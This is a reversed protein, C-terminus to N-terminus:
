IGTKTGSLRNRFILFVLILLITVELAIWSLPIPRAYFEFPDSDGPVTTQAWLSTASLMTLMMGTITFLLKKM